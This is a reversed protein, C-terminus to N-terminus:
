ICSSGSPGSDTSVLWASPGAKVTPVSQVVTVKRTLLYSYTVRPLLGYKRRLAGSLKMYAGLLLVVRGSFLSLDLLLM